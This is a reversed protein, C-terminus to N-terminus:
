NIDDDNKDEKTLKKDKIIVKSDKPLHKVSIDDDNNGNDTNTGDDEYSSDDHQDVIVDNAHNRMYQISEDEEAISSQEM